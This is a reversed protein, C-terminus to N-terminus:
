RAVATLTRRFGNVDRETALCSDGLGGLDVGVKTDGGVPEGDASADGIGEAGGRRLRLGDAEIDRGAALRDVDDTDVVLGLRTVDLDVVARALLAM